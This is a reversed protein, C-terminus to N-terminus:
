FVPSPLKTTSFNSGSPRLGACIGPLQTVYILKAPAGRFLLNSPRKVWSAAQLDPARRQSLSAAGEARIDIFSKTFVRSPWLWARLGM